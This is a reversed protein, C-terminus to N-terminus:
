ALPRHHPENGGGTLVQLHQPLKNRRLSSSTMRLVLPSGLDQGNGRFFKLLHLAGHQVAVPTLSQAEELFEDFAQLLLFVPAQLRVQSLAAETRRSWLPVNLNYNPSFLSM